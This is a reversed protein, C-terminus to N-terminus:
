PELILKSSVLFWPPQALIRQALLGAKASTMLRSQSCLCLIFPLREVLEPTETEVVAVGMMWQEAPFLHTLCTLLVLFFTSYM